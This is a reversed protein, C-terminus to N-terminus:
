KNARREREQEMLKTNVQLKWISDAYAQKHNVQLKITQQKTM